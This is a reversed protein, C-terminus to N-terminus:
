QVILKYYGTNRWASNYFYGNTALFIYMSTTTLYYTDYAIGYGVSADFYFPRPFVYSTDALNLKALYIHKSPLVGLAHSYEVFGGAGSIATWSSEWYGPKCKDFALINSSGNNYVQGIYRWTLGETSHFLGTAFDVLRDFTVNNNFRDKGPASESFKYTLPSGAIAYLYYYKSSGESEGARLNGSLTINAVSTQTYVTGGIEIAGPQIQVTDNDVSKFWMGVLLDVSYTLTQFSPLASAGNSTLVQGSTGVSAVSQQAGTATTGGTIVAYPTASNRGTGGGSVSGGPPIPPMAYAFTSLLLSCFLVILIVKKM